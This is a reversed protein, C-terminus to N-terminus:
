QLNDLLLKAARVSEVEQHESVREYVPSLLARAAERNGQSHYLQALSLAAHLEADQNGWARAHELGQRIFNAPEESGEKVSSRTIYLAEGVWVQAMGTRLANEQETYELARYATEEAAAADGVEALNVALLALEIGLRNKAGLNEYARIATRHAEIVEARDRTRYLGHIRILAGM